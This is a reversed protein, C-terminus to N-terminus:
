KLTKVPRVEYVQAHVYGNSGAPIYEDYCITGVADTTETMECDQVDRDLDCACHPQPSTSFGNNGTWVEKPTYVKTGGALAVSSVLTLLSLVITRKM